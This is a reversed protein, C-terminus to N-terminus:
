PTQYRKLTRPPMPSDDTVSKIEGDVEVWYDYEFFFAGPPLVRKGTLRNPLPDM